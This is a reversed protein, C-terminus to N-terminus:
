RWGCFTNFCRTLNDLLNFCCRRTKLTRKTQTKSYFWAIAKHKYWSQKVRSTLPRSMNNVLQRLVTQDLKEYILNSIWCFIIWWNASLLKGDVNHISAEFRAGNRHQSSIRGWERNEPLVMYMKCYNRDKSSCHKHLATNLYTKFIDSLISLIAFSDEFMNLKLLNNYLCNNDKLLRIRDSFHLGWYYIKINSPSWLNWFIQYFIVAEACYNM